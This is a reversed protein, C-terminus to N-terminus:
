KKKEQPVFHNGWWGTGNEIQKTGKQWREYIRTAPVGSALSALEAASWMAAKVSKEDHDTMVKVGSYVTKLAMSFPETIPMRATSPRKNEAALEVANWADRIFPLGMLRYSVIDSFYDWKSKKRKDDDGGGLAGMIGYMLMAQLFTSMVAPALWTMLNENLFESTSIKDNRWAEWSVQLNEQQTASFSMFPAMLSWFPHRQFGTLDISLGSGLYKGIAADAAETAKKIDGHKEIEANYKGWWGPLSVIADIFRIGAFALSKTDDYGYRKGNVDIAGFSIYKLKEQMDKSIREKGMDFERMQKTMDREIKSDRLRMYASAELMAKHAALPNSMVHVVGNLYNHFGTRKMVPFFGTNNQLATWANYGMYFTSMRTRMWEAIRGRETMTPRIVQKLTPRIMDVMDRGLTELNREMLMDNRFVRDADRVKEALTIFRITDNFHTALVNLSLDVPYAVGTREKSFGSKAAPVQMIAEHSALLDDKESWEAIKRTFRADYKIPYYGGKLTVQQGDATTITLPRAEIKKPRFYKLREHVEAIQPWLSDVTDWIKQIAQWEEATLKSAIMSADAQTLGYGDLLKMINSDNGMNLAAAVVRSKNWSAGEQKLMDPWTIDSFVKDGDKMLVQLAPEVEKQIAVWMDNSAAMGSIIDQVLQEAPGIEKSYGDMRKAIFRLIGTNAFFKRYNKQVAQIVRGAATADSALAKKNKIGDQRAAIEAAKDAVAEGNALKRGRVEDRGNGYLYKLTDNFEQRQEFTLKNFDNVEVGIWAPLAAGTGDFDDIKSAAFDHLNSMAPDYDRKAIGYQDLLRDIQKRWSEGVKAAEGSKVRTANKVKNVNSEIAKNTKIARYSAAILEETLRAKENSALAEDWKGQRAELIAQQRHKRSEALLKGVNNIERMTRGAITKDAWARMTARPTVTQKVARKALWESEIELMRRLAATRIAEQSDLTTDHIAELQAVRKDVWLQRPEMQQLAAALEGASNFGHEAGHEAVAVNVDLGDNRWLHPLNPTNEKGLIAEVSQRNIGGEAVVKDVFAYVPIAKVEEQAQKRFEAKRTTSGVLKHKDMKERASDESQALLNRYEEIMSQSDGVDAMMNSDLMGVLADRERAAQIQQETAMLRGFLDSLEPSVTVNDRQGKRYSKIGEYIKTLWRKFSRFANRLEISPAKGEMLYKEFHEAFKEHGAVALWRNTFAEYQVQEVPMAELTAIEQKILEATQADVKSIADRAILIAHQRLSQPDNKIWENVAEWEKQQVGYTEAVYRLDNLFIHATEHLFTSKDAGEFLTVLNQGNATNLAGLPNNMAQQKQYMETIAIDDDSFIVYNYQKDKSLEAVADILAKSPDFNKLNNGLAASIAQSPYDFGLWDDAELAKLLVEQEQSFRGSGILDMVDEFESDEPLASLFAKKIDKIPRNRSDGDEYKIGRIGLSHLYESAAKDRGKITKGDVIDRYFTSGASYMKLHDKFKSVAIAGRVKESQESLPKDWLLYEDEAPALEVKYLRGQARKYLEEAADQLTWVDVGDIDRSLWDKMDNLAPIAELEKTAKKFQDLVIEEAENNPNVKSIDSLQERYWEAVEKNGAFYLGYGYAQAGEGTGIASTSFKDFTYPSGHWASQFLISPEDKGFAGSNGTASKIQDPRMVFGNFSGDSDVLVAGDLGRGKFEDLMLQDYQKWNAPSEIKAYLEMIIKTSQAGADGSLISDKDSAFWFLGQAGKKMNIKTFKSGTGHYVVLPRGQEDVVKSDGFWRWFNRIGEESWHIPQGNSNLASRTVGDVDIETVGEALPTTAKEALVRDQQFPYDDEEAQQEAYNDMDDKFAQIIAAHNDNLQKGDKANKLAALIQSKNHGHMLYLSHVAPYFQELHKSFESESWNGKNGKGKLVTKDGEEVLSDYVTDFYYKANEAKNQKRAEYDAFKMVQLGTPRLLRNLHEIAPVGTAQSILNAREIIPMLSEMTVNGKLGPTNLIAEEWAAIDDQNIKHNQDAQYLENLHKMTEMDLQVGNEAESRSHANPDIVFYNQLSQLVPDNQFYTAFKGTELGILGGTNIAEQLHSASVGYQELYAPIQQGTVGNNIAATILKDAKFYITPAGYHEATDQAFQAFTEPSREKLKSMEATTLAELVADHQKQQAARQAAEAFQNSAKAMPYMAAGQLGGAGLTVVATDLVSQAFDQLTMDPQLTGKNMLQKYANNIQEGLFDGGLYEVMSKAFGKGKYLQGVGIKETLGEMAKNSMSFFAAQAPSYGAKLYDDLNGGATVAFGVLMPIEGAAGLPAILLNQAVTDFIMQGWREGTTQPKYEEVGEIQQDYWKMNDLLMGSPNQVGFARQIDNWGTLENRVYVAENIGKGISLPAKKAAQVALTGYNGASKKFSDAFAQDQPAAMGLTSQSKGISKLKSEFEALTPIDDKMLPANNANAAFNAVSPTHSIALGQMYYQQKASEKVQPDTMLTAPIGTSRELRRKEAEEDPNVKYSNNLNYVAEAQKRQNDNETQQDLASYFDNLGM